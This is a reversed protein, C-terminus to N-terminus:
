KNEQQMIITVFCAVYGCSNQYKITDVLSVNQSWKLLIPANKGIHGRYPWFDLRQGKRSYGCLPAEYMKKQM